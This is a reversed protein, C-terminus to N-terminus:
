WQVSQTHVHKRIKWKERTASETKTESHQALYLRSKILLCKILLSIYKQKTQDEMQVVDNEPKTIKHVIMM